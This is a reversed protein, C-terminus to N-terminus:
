TGYESCLLKLSSRSKTEQNRGMRMMGLTPLSLPPGLHLSISLSSVPSLPGM